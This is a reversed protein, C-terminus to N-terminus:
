PAPPAAWPLQSFPNRPAPLLGSGPAFPDDPAGPVTVRYLRVNDIWLAEETGRYRLELRAQTAGVLPWGESLTPTAFVQLYRGAMPYVTVIDQIRTQTGLPDTVVVEVPSEPVGETRFDAILSLFERAGLPEDLTVTQHLRPQGAQTAAARFRWASSGTTPDVALASRGAKKVTWGDPVGDADSDLAFDGNVLLTSTEVVSFNLTLSTIGVLFDSSPFYVGNNVLIYYTRHADLPLALVMGLASPWASSSCVLESLQGGQEAYVAFATRTQSPMIANLSGFTDINVLVPETPTYRYWTNGFGSNFGGCGTLPDDGSASAYFFNPETDHFTPGTIVEANAFADNTPACIHASVRVAGSDDGDKMARLTYAAFGCGPADLYQTTNQPLPITTRQGLADTRELLYGTEDAVDTWTLTVSSGDLGLAFDQPPAVCPRATVSVEGSPASTHVGSTKTVQRVLRYRLAGCPLASDTYAAGIVAIDTWDQAARRQLILTGSAAADWTLSVTAADSVVALPALPPEVRIGRYARDADIRPFRVKEPKYRKDRTPVGNAELAAELQGPTLSPDAQLLLAAVAAVTPSAMSTGCNNVYRPDSPVSMRNEARISCGPALMDVMEGDGQVPSANSYSSVSGALDDPTAQNLGPADNVSGVGVVDAICAPAAVADLTGNNGTAAVVMVGLDVLSAIVDGYAPNDLACAEASTYGGAALSMNIVDVGLSAQNTVVYDLAALVNGESTFGLAGFVKLAAVQVDPAVGLRGTIIGSVHTGHGNEDQASTEDGCDNEIRFCRQHYIDATLETHPHHLDVGTDIVAVRVGSGTIGRAHLASARTLLDAQEDVAFAATDSLTIQKDLTISAVLPHQALAAVGAATVTGALAPISRYRWGPTFQGVPVAALVAHQGAAITNMRAASPARPAALTVIVAANGTSRLATQVAPSIAAAHTSSQANAGHQPIGLSLLVWLAALVVVRSLVPLTRKM